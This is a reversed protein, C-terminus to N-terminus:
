MKKLKIKIFKPKNLFFFILYKSIRLKNINFLTKFTKMEFQERAKKHIHPSKLLTIKKSKMPLNIHSYTINLKNLVQKLFKLYIALLTKDISYIKLQLTNKM